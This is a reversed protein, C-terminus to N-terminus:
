RLHQRPQVDREARRLYQHRGVAICLYLHAAHRAEAHLPAALGEEVLRKLALQAGVLLLRAVAMWLVLATDSCASM